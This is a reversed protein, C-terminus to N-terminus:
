ASQQTSGQLGCRCRTCPLVHQDGVVHLLSRASNLLQKFPQMFAETHAVGASAAALGQQQPQM